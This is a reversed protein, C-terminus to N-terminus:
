SSRRRRTPSGFGAQTLIQDARHAQGVNTDQQKVTKM